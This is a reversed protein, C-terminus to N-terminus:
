EKMLREVSEFESEIDALMAQVTPDTINIGKTEKAGNENLIGELLGKVKEATESGEPNLASEEEGEPIKPVKM